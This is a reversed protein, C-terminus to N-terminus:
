PFLIASIHSLDVQFQIITETNVEKSLNANAVQFKNIKAELLACQGRARNEFDLYKATSTELEKKLEIINM